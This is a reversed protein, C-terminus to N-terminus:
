RLCAMNILVLGLPLTSGLLFSILIHQQIAQMKM